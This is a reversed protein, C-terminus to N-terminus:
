GKEALEDDPHSEFWYPPSAKPLIWNRKFEESNSKIARVWIESHSVTREIDEFGSTRFLEEIQEWYFRRNVLPAYIDHFNHIQNYDGNAKSMLFAQKEDQTALTNYRVREKFLELDIDYPLTERGYLYAFMVGDDKVLSQLSNFAKIFDSCHHLVGWSWVLDFRQSALHNNLEELSCVHADPQVGLERLACVTADVASENVDVITVEAGLQALGYSWRGNGCGADLVSKGVFWDPNINTEQDCIISTLNSKFWEDSLLFRGSDLTKWQHDFATRTQTASFDLASTLDHSADFILRYLGDLEEEVKKLKNSSDDRSGLGHELVLSELRENLYRKMPTKLASPIFKFISM